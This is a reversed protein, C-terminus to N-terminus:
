FWSETGAAAAMAKASEAQRRRFAWYNKNRVVDSTDQEGKGRCAFCVNGNGWKGTGNCPQCTDSVEPSADKDRHIPCGESLAQFREYLDQSPEEGKEMREFLEDLAVNCMKTQGREFLLEARTLIKEFADM